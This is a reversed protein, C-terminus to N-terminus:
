TTCHSKVGHPTDIHSAHFFGKRWLKVLLKSFNILRYSTDMNIDKNSKGTPIIIDNNLPGVSPAKEIATGAILVLGLVLVRRIGEVCEAM